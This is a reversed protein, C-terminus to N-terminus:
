SMGDALGLGKFRVDAKGAGAGRKTWPPHSLSSDVSTGNLAPMKHRGWASPLCGEGEESMEEPGCQGGARTDRRRSWFSLSPPLTIPPAPERGRGQTKTTPPPRVARHAFRLNVSTVEGPACLYNVGMQRCLSPPELEGLQQMPKMCGGLSWPAGPM